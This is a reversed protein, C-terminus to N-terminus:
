NRVGELDGTVMEGIDESVVEGGDTVTTQELSRIERGLRDLDFRTESIRAALLAVVGSSVTAGLFSWLFSPPPLMTGFIPIAAVFERLMPFYVFGVVLGVISAVLAGNETARRSYLGHLFPVFTAAALLDALLFLTLVSYGQAGVVITAIAVVLTFGRAVLTLTEHDPDDLLRPLDATVISALANFLTDATSMVLLVALVVVVLTVWEPFARNLVLFFAVSANGTDLLGMGSAALGFLGALFIMPVVTLGALAFARRVTQTDEAAFVRQWQGQNFMNAGLVAFVVYVGFEVGPPYAPNLLHPSSQTVTHYIERAGGLSIIAGAFGIALLPLIVLTQITDTFISAVLGGYGTYVLVFLGILTATQWNPIGAVLGLASAIGTIEAALFVFLYFVTIVLVYAYMRRGYRALVYETLSHGEPILERIRTGVSVFLWLPLASGIAYGAIAPLGGFAAGAEAPSFLIWAGMSSAILTATTMGRGTSNRATLYEEISDVRGRAYWLGLATVLALTATTVGLALTTSVM